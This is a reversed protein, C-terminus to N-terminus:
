GAQRILYNLKSNKHLDSLYDEGLDKFKAGHKLVHYIAKLIRHAIAVIAKKPGPRSRLSFFKARYYSRKARVAAWAVEILITKLNGKYVPSQGSHRKGASENNGPCVGAWSCFSATNPFSSLTPGTESIISYASIFDIGPIENLRDIADEYPKLLGRLRLQIDNILHELHEVNALMKELLWRHHDEFFGQIARHLEEGKSKIKGRLCQKVEELTLEQGKKLLLEMLNRGTRTFIQSAVSDIKINASEFLKHVQRKADGLDEIKSRRYRTLDRWQRVHKEPIFSGKLLGVRLLGCVWHSDSM